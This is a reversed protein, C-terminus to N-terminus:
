RKNSWIFALVSGSINHWISFIAGPLAAAASFHKIALAVALGSNQMGVEIALTRCEKEPYGMLRASGYGALLGATNHLVVAILVTIGIQSFQGANLATIIAIILVIAAIAVLPLYHEVAQIHRAFFHKLILGSTVPFIVIYLISLFMKGAPVQISTDAILLTIAPTLAIALITSISTLSISLAVNGRALYTIVNSATGGPCAGVLIMGIALTPELQLTTAILLAALPMISYQLILGTVILRPMALARKFDNINLTLGMSFMILTLLPVIAPKLEIFPAPLYYALVSLAIAWVPFLRAILQM